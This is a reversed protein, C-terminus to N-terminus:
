SPKRSPRDRPQTAAPINGDSKDRAVRRGDGDDSGFPAVIMRGRTTDVILELRCVHCRYTVGPRPELDQSSHRIVLRCAPCTWPM